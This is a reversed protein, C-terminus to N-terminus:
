GLLYYKDKMRGYSRRESSVELFLKELEKYVKEKRKDSKTVREIGAFFSYMYGSLFDDKERLRMMLGHAENFLDDPLRRFLDKDILREGKANMIITSHVFSVFMNRIRGFLAYLSLLEDNEVKDLDIKEREEIMRRVYTKKDIICDQENRITESISLITQNFVPLKCMKDYSYGRGDLKFRNPKIPNDERPLQKSVRYLLRLEYFAERISLRKIRERDEKTIFEILQKRLNSRSIEFVNSDQAYYNISVLEANCFQNHIAAWLMYPLLNKGFSENNKVLLNQSREMIYNELTPYYFDPYLRKLEKIGEESKSRLKEYHREIIAYGENFLHRQKSDRIQILLPHLLGNLTDTDILAMKEDIYMVVHIDGGNRLRAMSQIISPIGDSFVGYHKRQKSNDNKIVPMIIILLSNGDTINVGTKFSTGISNNEENFVDDTGGTLITPNLGLILEVFPDVKQVYNRIGKDLKGAEVLIDRLEKTFGRLKSKNTMAKVLSRHGCLIHIRRNGREKIIPEIVQLPYLNSQHYEKTTIHFHLKAQIANKHRDGEYICIKKGTLLSIYKIVPIAAEIYTASALFCKLVLGNWRFLSPLLTNRFNGISEHIEDFFLVVKKNNMKVYDIIESLYNKKLFSQEFSDEGPNQLLCNISMLHVDAQVFEKIQKKETELHLYNRIIINEGAYRSVLEAYDKEILKKFPSCIIVVYEKRRKGYRRILDYFFTTKGKGAQINLVVTEEKRYDFEKFHVEYNLQEDPELKIEKRTVEFGEQILRDVPIKFYDIPASKLTFPLEHKSVSFEGVRAYLFSSVTKIEDGEKM